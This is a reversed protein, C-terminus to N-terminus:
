PTTSPEAAQTNYTHVHYMCYMSGLVYVAREEHAAPGVGDGFTTVLPM